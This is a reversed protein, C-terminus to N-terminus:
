ETLRFNDLYLIPVPDPSQWDSKVVQVVFYMRVTEGNDHNEWNYPFRLNHWSGDGRIVERPSEYYNTGGKELILFINFNADVTDPTFADIQVKAYDKWPIQTEIDFRVRRWWEYHRFFTTKLSGSGETKIATEYELTSSSAPLWEDIEAQSNFGFVMTQEPEPLVIPLHISTDGSITFTVTDSSYVSGGQDTQAYITVSQNLFPHLFWRGLDFPITKGNVILDGFFIKNSDQDTIKVTLFRDSGPIGFLLNITTDAGATFYATESFLPSGSYEVEASIELVEGDYGLYNFYNNPANYKVGNIYIWDPDAQGGINYDAEVHLNYLAPIGNVGAIYSGNYLNAMALVGGDIELGALFEGPVSTDVLEVSDPNSIDYIHLGQAWGVSYLYHSEIRLGYSSPFSPSSLTLPTSPNSIDVVTIGGSGCAVYLRNGRIAADVAHGSISINGVAGAGTTWLPDPDYSTQYIGVGNQGRAVYIFDNKKVIGDGYGSDISTYIVSPTVPNNVSVIILTKEESTIYAFVGAQSFIRKAVGAIPTLSAQIPNSINSVDIIFLGKHRDLLYVYNSSTKSIDVAYGGTEFTSVVFPSAPNAVNVITLGKKGDAIYLNDGDKVLNRAFGPTSVNGLIQTSVGFSNLILNLILLILIRINM